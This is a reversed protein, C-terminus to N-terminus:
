GSNPICGYPTEKLLNENPDRYFNPIDLQKEPYPLIYFQCHLVYKHEENVGNVNFVKLVWNPEKGWKFYGKPIIKNRYDEWFSEYAERTTDCEKSMVTILMPSSEFATVITHNAEIDRNIHSM